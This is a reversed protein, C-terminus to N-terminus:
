EATVSRLLVRAAKAVELEGAFDALTHTQTYASLMEFHPTCIENTLFVLLPGNTKEDPNARAAKAVELEGAFDALTHTQTYAALMEFHADCIESTLFVLLPVNTTEDPTHDPNEASM